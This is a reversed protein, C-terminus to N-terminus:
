PLVFTLFTGNGIKQEAFFEEKPIGTLLFRAARVVFGHAVLLVAEDRFNTRLERLGAATRRVVARTTEGDPPASNWQQLIGQAWLEPYGHRAQEPTLGEFVGFNRERFNAMTTLPLRRSEAVACATQYARRQPSSIIRGIGPPLSAELNLAQRRGSENLPLDGIGQYRDEINLDTEGHRAIYLIM